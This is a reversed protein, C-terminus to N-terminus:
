LHIKQHFVFTCNYFHKEDLIQATILLPKVHSVPPSMVADEFCTDFLVVHGYTLYFYLYHMLLLCTVTCVLYSSDIIQETILHYVLIDPPQYISGIGTNKKRTDDQKTPQNVSLHCRQTRATLATWVSFLNNQTNYYKNPSGMM